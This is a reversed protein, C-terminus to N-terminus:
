SLLYELMVFSGYFPKVLGFAKPKDGPFVAVINEDMMCRDAAVAKLRQRFTLRDCKVDFRRWFAWSGCVDYCGLNDGSYM